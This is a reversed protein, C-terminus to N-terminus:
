LLYLLVWAIVAVLALVRLYFGAEEIGPLPGPYSESGRARTGEAVLVTTFYASGLAFVALFITWGYFVSTFGGGDPTFEVHAYEFGQLVIAVLQAALAVGAWRVWPQRRKSTVDALSLAAAGLVFLAVIAIGYGDPAALDGENWRGHSDVSRLYFYAFAFAFFFLITSGSIVRVGIRLNRDHVEPSEAFEDGYIEQRPNM